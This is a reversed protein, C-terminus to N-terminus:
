KCRARRQKKRLNYFRELRKNAKAAADAYEWVSMNGSRMQELVSKPIKPLQTRTM